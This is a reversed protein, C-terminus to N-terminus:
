AVPCSNESKCEKISKTEASQFLNYHTHDEYRTGDFRVFCNNFICSEVQLKKVNKLIGIVGDTQNPKPFTGVEKKLWRTCNKFRSNKIKLLQSENVCFVGKYFEEFSCGIIELKTIDSFKMPSIKGQFHINNFVVNRKKRIPLLTIVDKWEIGGNNKIMIENPTEVFYEKVLLFPLFISFDIKHFHAVLRENEEISAKLIVLLEEMQEKSVSMLAAIDSVYEMKQLNGHDYLEIMRLADLVFFNVLQEREVAAIAENVAKEDLILSRKFLLEMNPAPRLATAIRFPYVLPNDEVDPSTGHAAVSLLLTLYSELAHADKGDLPHPTIPHREATRLISAFDVNKEQEEKAHIMESIEGHLNAAMKALSQLQETEKLLDELTKM